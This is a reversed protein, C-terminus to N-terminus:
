LRRRSSQHDEEATTEPLKTNFLASGRRASFEECCIRCRLLRLCDRGYVKRIARNGQGAQRFQQCEPNVCALTTLDPRKM